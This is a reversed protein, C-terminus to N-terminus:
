VFRRLVGRDDTEDVLHQLVGNLQPGRVDMQLRKLVLQADTVPDVAHQLLHRHRRLDLFELRRDDRPHLDEAVQVDCLLPEGLVAPDLHADLRGLDVDTDGDDRHQVALCHYHAQQALIRGQPADAIEPHVLALVAAEPAHQLQRVPNDQDRAGGTAALRRGEIGGQLLDVIRLPLDDGDLIRDLVLQPPHVLDLDRLLGPQGEGAPQTRDQPVIGVHNQNTFDAVLLSGLDRHLSRKRAVQDERGQM